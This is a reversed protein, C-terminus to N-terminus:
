GSSYSYSYDVSLWTGGIEGGCLHRLQLRVDYSCNSREPDQADLCPEGRRKGLKPWGCRAPSPSPPPSPWVFLTPRRDAVGHSLPAPGVGLCPPPSTGRGRESGLVDDNTTGGKV